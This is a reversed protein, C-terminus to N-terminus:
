LIFSSSSDDPTPQPSRLASDDVRIRRVITMDTPTVGADLEWHMRQERADLYHSEVYLTWPGIDVADGHYVPVRSHIPVRNLFTLADVDKKELYLGDIESVLAAHVPMVSPDPLVFACRRDRGLSVYRRNFHFKGSKTVLWFEIM